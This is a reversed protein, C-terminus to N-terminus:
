YLLIETPDTSVLKETESVQSFLSAATANKFYQVDCSLSSISKYSFALIGAPFKSISSDFSEGRITSTRFIELECTPRVGQHSLCNPAPSPTSNLLVQTATSPPSSACVAKSERCCNASSLAPRYLNLHPAPCM